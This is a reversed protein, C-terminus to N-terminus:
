NPAPSWPDGSAVQFGSQAVIDLGRDSATVFRLFALAASPARTKKLVGLVLSARGADLVPSRVVDLDPYSAALADWIVAANVAGILVDNATEPVTPKFVGRQLINAEIADWQGADRLLRSTTRGIAAQEPNGFSVRVDSRALDEVREIRKPNGKAVVIVPHQYAIEEAEEVLGREQALEMYYNEAALYLDGNGQGAEIQGLLTNSGGYQVQVQVGMEDQYRQVIKAMPKRFGAACFLTLPREAVSGHNSGPGRDLMWLSGICAALVLLSGLLLWSSRSHDGFM